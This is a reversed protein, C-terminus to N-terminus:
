LVGVGDLLTDHGVLSLPVRVTFPLTMSLFLPKLSYVALTVILGSLMRRAPRILM